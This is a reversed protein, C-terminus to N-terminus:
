CINGEPRCVFKSPPGKKQLGTYLHENGQQDDGDGELAQALSLAGPHSPVDQGHGTHIVHLGETSSATYSMYAKQVVQSPVAQGHGTHVVHLGETSDQSHIIM